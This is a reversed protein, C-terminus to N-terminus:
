YTLVRANDLNEVRSEALRNITFTKQEVHGRLWYFVTLLLRSPLHLTAWLRTSDRAKARM